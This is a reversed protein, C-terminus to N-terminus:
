GEMLVDAVVQAKDRAIGEFCGGGSYGVVPYLAWGGAPDSTPPYRTCVGSDDQALAGFKHATKSFCRCESCKLFNVRM